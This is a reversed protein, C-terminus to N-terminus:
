AGTTSGPRVIMLVVVAAWILNFTGTVMGLRSTGDGGRLIAAQGPLILFALAAAAIVTLVMSIILWPDALVGLSSGTALGFV